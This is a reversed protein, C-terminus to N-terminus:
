CRLVSSPWLCETDTTSQDPNVLIPYKGQNSLKLPIIYWQYGACQPMYVHYQVIIIHPFRLPNHKTVINKDTTYSYM